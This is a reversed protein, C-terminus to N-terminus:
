RKSLQNFIEQFRNVQGVFYVTYFGAYILAKWHGLITLIKSKNSFYVRYILQDLTNRSKITIGTPFFGAYCALTIIATIYEM